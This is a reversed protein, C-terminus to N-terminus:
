QPCTGWIPRSKTWNNAHFDFKNPEIDFQSVCWSSLDQNFSDVHYFMRYMDTVDSTNWSGIDQNFNNAVAFMLRMNKVASVDWKTIDQNFEWANYFMSRMNTVNSVDWSGIDQNFNVEWNFLKEMNTVHSTCATTLDHNKYDDAWDYLTSESVATYETGDVTFTNGSEIGDCHVIGDSDKYYDDSKVSVTRTVEQSFAGCDVRLTVDHKGSESFKHSISQCGTTSNEGFSWTCQPKDCQSLDANVGVNKAQVPVAILAVAVCFSFTILFTYYFKM